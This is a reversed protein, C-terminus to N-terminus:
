QGAWEGPPPVDIPWALTVNGGPLFRGSEVTPVQRSQRLQDAVTVKEVHGDLMSVYSHGTNLDQRQPRHYTAFCDGFVYDPDTTLGTGRISYTAHIDLDGFRLTGHHGPPTKSLYYKGSLRIPAPWRAASDLPQKGEENIAWSNQEGFTFVQAPSRTVQGLRNISWRRLTREDISGKSGDGSMGTTLTRGLNSNMTYTYQTEVQITNDHKCFHYRNNKCANWCGRLENARKGVKCLLVEPTGLYSTLTGQLEPHENMLTARQAMRADHWRCCPWYGTWIDMDRSISSHYITSPSPFLGDEDSMYTRLIVAMQRLNSKCSTELGAQRAKNLVPLSIAMLAAILAIVVLLEILTFARSRFM